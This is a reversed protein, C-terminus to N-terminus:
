EEEGKVESSLMMLAEIASNHEKAKKEAAQKSKQKAELRATTPRPIVTPTPTPTPTTPTTPRSTPKPKPIQTPATVETKVQKAEVELEKLQTTPAIVEEMISKRKRGQGRVTLGHPAPRSNALMEQLVHVAINKCFIKGVVQAQEPHYLSGADNQRRVLIHWGSFKYRVNPNAPQPHVPRTNYLLVHVFTDRSFGTYIEKLVKQCGGTKLAVMKMEEGLEERLLDRGVCQLSTHVVDMFNFKCLIEYPGKVFLIDGREECKVRGETARVTQSVKTRVFGNPNVVHPWATLDITM